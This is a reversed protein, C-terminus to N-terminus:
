KQDVDHKAMRERLNDVARQFAGDGNDRDFLWEEVEDKSFNVKIVRGFFYDIDTSEELAKRCDELKPSALGFLASMGQSHSNLWLELLLEAKDLGKINVM